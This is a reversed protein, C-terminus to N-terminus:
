IEDGPCSELARMYAEDGTAAVFHIARIIQKYQMDSIRHLSRQSAAIRPLHGRQMDDMAAVAKVMEVWHWCDKGQYEGNGGAAFSLSALLTFVPLRV